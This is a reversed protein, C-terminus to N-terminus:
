RTPAKVAAVVAATSNGVAVALFDDEDAPAVPVFWGLLRGAPDRLKLEGPLGRLKERLTETVTVWNRADDEDAWEPGPAGGPAPVFAGLLHQEDEAWVEAEGPLGGFDRALAEDLIVSHM